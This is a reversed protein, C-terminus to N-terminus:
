QALVKFKAKLAAKSADALGMNGLAQAVAPAGVLDELAALIEKAAAHTKVIAWHERTSHRPVAGRIFLGIGLGEKCTKCGLSTEARRRMSAVSECGRGTAGRAALDKKSARHKGPHKSTRCCRVFVDPDGVMSICRQRAKCRVMVDETGRLDERDKIQM